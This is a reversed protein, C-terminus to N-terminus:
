DLAILVLVLALLCLSLVLAVVGRTRPRNAAAMANFRAWDEPSMKNTAVRGQTVDARVPVSPHIVPTSPVQRRIPGHPAAIGGLVAREGSVIHGRAVPPMMPTPRIMPTPRMIPAAIAARVGAASGTAPVVAQVVAASPQMPSFTQRPGAAEASIGAVRQARMRQSPSAVPESVSNPPLSGSGLPPTARPVQAPAM